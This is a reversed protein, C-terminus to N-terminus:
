NQMTFLHVIERGKALTLDSLNIFDHKATINQNGKKYERAVGLNTYFTANSFSVLVTRDRKLEM